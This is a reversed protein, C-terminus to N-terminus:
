RRAEVEAGEHGIIVRTGAPPVTACDNERNAGWGCSSFDGCPRDLLDFIEHLGAPETRDPSATGNLRAISSTRM